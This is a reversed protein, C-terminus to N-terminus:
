SELSAQKQIGRRVIAEDEPNLVDSELLEYENLGTQNKVLFYQGDVHVIHLGNIKFESAM